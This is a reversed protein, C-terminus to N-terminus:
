KGGIRLVVGSRWRINSFNRGTAHHVPFYDVEILRISVSRAVPVDVGGGAAGAIAHESFNRSPSSGTATLIGVGVLVHIFPSAKETPFSITPGAMVTYARANSQASGAYERRYFGGSDFTIGVNRSLNNTISAGWGMVTNGGTTLGKADLHMM